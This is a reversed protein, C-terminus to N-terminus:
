RYKETTMDIYRSLHKNFDEQEDNIINSFEKEYTNLDECLKELDEEHSVDAAAKVVSQKFFPKIQSTTLQSETDSM